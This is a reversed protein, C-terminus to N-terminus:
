SAWSNPHLQAPAVNLETLLEREFRTFPLRLKVKKFFTTYIFCFLEGNNGKNDACIPEGPLCPLVIMKSDHEKHFSLDSQDGKRLRHVGLEINISSTEKLLTPTAWPYLEKYDQPLLPAGGAVPPTAQTPNAHSSTPREAQNSPAGSAQSPNRAPPPNTGPAVRRPKLSPNRSSPPPNATSKTHAMAPVAFSLSLSSILIVSFSEIPSSSSVVFSYPNAPISV